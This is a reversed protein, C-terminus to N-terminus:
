TRSSSTSPSTIAAEELLYVLLAWVGRASTLDHGCSEGKSRAMAHSFTAVAREMRFRAYDASCILLKYGEAGQLAQIIHDYRMDDPPRQLAAVVNLFEQVQGRLKSLQDRNMPAGGERIGSGYVQDPEAERTFFALSGEDYSLNFGGSLFLETAKNGKFVLLDRVVAFRRLQECVTAETGYGARAMARDIHEVLEAGTAEFAEAELLHRLLNEGMLRARFSLVPVMKILEGAKKGVRFYRGDLDIACGKTAENTRSNDNTRSKESSSGGKEAEEANGVAKFGAVDSQAKQREAERGTIFRAKEEEAEVVERLEDAQEGGGKQSLVLFRDNAGVKLTVGKQDFFVSDKFAESVEQETPGARAGDRRPPMGGILGVPKVTMIAGEVKTVRLIAFLRGLEGSMDNMNLKAYMSSPAFTIDNQRMEKADCHKALEWIKVKQTGDIDEVNLGAVGFYTLHQRQLPRAQADSASREKFSLDYRTPAYFQVSM